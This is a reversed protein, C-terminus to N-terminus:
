TWFILKPCFLNCYDVRSVVAALKDLAKIDCVEKCTVCTVGSTLSGVWQFVYGSFLCTHQTCTCSCYMYVDVVYELYLLDSSSNLHSM